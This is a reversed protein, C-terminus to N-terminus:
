GLVLANGSRKGYAELIHQNMLKVAEFNKVGRMTGIITDLLPDLKLHHVSHCNECLTVLSLDNYEWPMKGPEYCYHHVHLSMNSENCWQCCFGDRSLIELRKKQWLPHKLLQGYNM